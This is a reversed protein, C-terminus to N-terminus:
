FEYYNDIECNKLHGIIDQKAGKQTVALLVKGKLGKLSKVEVGYILKGIKKENETVWSFKINRHILKQALSKGSPGAGWLTIDLGKTKLFFDLKLDYFKNDRYVELNRSARGPHDRWLHTVNKSSVVKLGGEWMKFVLHYDEPYICDFGGIRELDERYMMWNPSAIVCEKFIHDFHDDRECLGNLWNAYGIFGNGLDGDSFYRVRGTAVTGRGNKLLLKQLEKLKGDPMLDDADMRTIFSGKSKKYALKLADITGRGENKFLKVRDLGSLIEQSDDTSHDDVAILEFDVDQILISELTKKLFKAENKFPMLISIM